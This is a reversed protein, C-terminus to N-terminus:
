RHKERTAKSAIRAPRRQGDPNWVWRKTSSSEGGAAADRWANAANYDVNEVEEKEGFEIGERYAHNMQTGLLVSCMAMGFSSTSDPLHPNTTAESKDGIYTHNWRSHSGSSVYIRKDGRGGRTSVGYKCHNEDVADAGDEGCAVQGSSKANVYLVGELKADRKTRNRSGWQNSVSADNEPTGRHESSQLYM